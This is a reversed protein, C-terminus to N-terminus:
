TIVKILLDKDEHRAAMSWYEYVKDLGILEYPLNAGMKQFCIIEDNTDVLVIFSHHSEKKSYQGGREWGFQVLAPPSVTRVYHAVEALSSVENFEHKFERRAAEPLLRNATTHCNDSFVQKVSRHSLKSEDFREPWVANTVPTDYFRPVHKGPIAETSISDSWMQTILLQKIEDALEENALLIQEGSLGVIVWQGDPNKILEFNTPREKLNPVKEMEIIKAPNAECDFVL